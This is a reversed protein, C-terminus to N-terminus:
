HAARKPVRLGAARAQQEIERIGLKLLGSAFRQYESEPPMRVPERLGGEWGPFKFLRFAMKISRVSPPYWQSTFESYRVCDGYFRGMKAFNGSEIADLYSRQTKPIVNGELGFVGAAGMTIKNLSGACHVYIPIDRKLADKLRVFYGDAGHSLNFAAIQP